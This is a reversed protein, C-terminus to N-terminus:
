RNAFRPNSDLVEKPSKIEEPLIDASCKIGTNSIKETAQTYNTSITYTYVCGNTELIMNYSSPNRIRKPTHNATLDTISKCGAMAIAAGLVMASLNRATKM